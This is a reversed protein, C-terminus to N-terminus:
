GRILLYRLIDENLKITKDLLKIVKPDQDFEFHAYYAKDQHKIPYALNRVGWLDEKKVEGLNKKVESLIQDRAKEDLDNKVLITLQYM